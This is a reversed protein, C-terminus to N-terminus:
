SPLTVQGSELDLLRAKLHLGGAYGTLSGGSAVVRHCPIIVPIPNRGNAAGVARVASPRGIVVAQESYSLTQGYPIELLAAWARLQFDTGVPRLPLDFATREGALFARLQDAAAALVRHDALAVRQGWSDQPRVGPYHVATVAVDDAVIAFDGFSTPASAYRLTGVAESLFPTSTM